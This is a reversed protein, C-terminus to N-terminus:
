GEDAKWASTKPAALGLCGLLHWQCAHRTKICSSISQITWAVVIPQFALVSLLSLLSIKLNGLNM